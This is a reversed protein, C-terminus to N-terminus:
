AHVLDMRGHDPSGRLARRNLLSPEDPLREWGDIELRFYHDCLRDWVPRQFWKMFQEDPGDSTMADTVRRAIYRELAGGGHM